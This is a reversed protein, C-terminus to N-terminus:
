SLVELSEKKRGIPKRPFVYLVHFQSDRYHLLWSARQHVQLFCKSSSPFNRSKFGDVRQAEIVGCCIDGDAALAKAVRWTVRSERDLETKIIRRRTGM